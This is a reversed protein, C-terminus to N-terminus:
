HHCAVCDLPAQRGHRRNQERHCEVCWGMTLAPAPPKLGVLRELDHLLRPGTQAGVVRMQEIPGHCGQCPLNARVHAKHPFYTFEPVKFV